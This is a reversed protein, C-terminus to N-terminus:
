SATFFDKDKKLPRDSDFVDGALVIVNAGAARGKEVM